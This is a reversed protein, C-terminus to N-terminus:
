TVAFTLIRFMGALDYGQMLYPPRISVDSFLISAITLCTSSSDPPKDFSTQLSLLWGVKCLFIVTRAKEYSTKRKKVVVPPKSWDTMETGSCEAVSGTERWQARSESEM